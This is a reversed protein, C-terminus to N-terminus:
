GSGAAKKLNRLIRENLQANFRSNGSWTEKRRAKVNM